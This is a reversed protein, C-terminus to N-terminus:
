CYLNTNLKKIVWRGAADGDTFVLAAEPHDGEGEGAPRVLTITRGALALLLLSTVALRPNHYPSVPVLVVINEATRLNERLWRLNRTSFFSGAPSRAVKVGQSSAARNVLDADAPPEGPPLLM